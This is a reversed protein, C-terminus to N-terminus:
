ANEEEWVIKGYDGLCANIALLFIAVLLFIGFRDEKHTTMTQSFETKEMKQILDAISDAEIETDTARFYAGGTDHALKKMTDEELHTFVVEGNRKKYGTSNGESEEPIPGGEPTGIGLTFIRVGANRAAAIAKDIDGTHGEGDSLILIAKSKTESHALVKLSENIANEIDTGIGYSLSNDLISRLGRFDLTLPCHLKTTTAFGVLAARNGELRDLLEAIESRAKKMRDPAIDEAKMSESTDVALVLDIGRRFVAEQRMGWQPRGIAFAMFILATVVLADKINKRRRLALRVLKAHQKPDSVRSRRIDEEQKWMDDPLLRYLTQIAGFKTATMRSRKRSWWQLSVILPILLWAAVWIWIEYGSVGFIM